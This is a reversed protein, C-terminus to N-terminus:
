KKTEVAYKIIGLFAEPKLSAGGVLAGDIDPESLLNGANEPTVSGGYLIKIKSGTNEGYMDILLERLFKHVEQAQQPTATVGTGIAWVPEYAIVLADPDSISISNLGGRLQIEVVAKTTKKQREELREGICLIPILGDAQARLVRKRVTEDTEGFYQRRESHGILVYKCGIAKLMAGSVEGTFAGKEEWYLNQGGVAVPTDKTLEIVQGLDPFPPCVAVLVGNLKPLNELIGRVLSKAEDPTKNMKWNGAILFDRM